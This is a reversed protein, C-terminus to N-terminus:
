KFLEERAYPNIEIPDAGELLPEDCLQFAADNISEMAGGPMLGHAAYFDPM